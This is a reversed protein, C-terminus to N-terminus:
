FQKKKKDKSEITKMREDARAGVIVCCYLTVITSTSIAIIIITTM